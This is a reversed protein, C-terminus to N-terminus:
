RCIRRWEPTYLEAAAALTLNHREEEPTPHAPRSPEPTRERIRSIEQLRQTALLVQARARDESLSMLRNKEGQIREDRALRGAEQGRDCISMKGKHAHEHMANRERTM